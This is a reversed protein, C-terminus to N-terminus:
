SEAETRLSTAGSKAREAMFSSWEQWCTLMRSEKLGPDAYRSVPIAELLWCSQLRPERVSNRHTARCLEPLVPSSFPYCTMRLAPYFLRQKLIGLDSM